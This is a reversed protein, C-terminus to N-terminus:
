QNDTPNSISNDAVERLYKFLKRSHVPPKGAAVERSANRVLQRLHQIDCGPNAEIYAQLDANQGKVLRDRWVELQHFYKNHAQKGSELLELFEELTAANADRMLRGIYQKQRRLGEGSKLRKATDVAERLAEDLPLKDLQDPRLDILKNGLVQLAQMERKKQSKSVPELNNEDESQPLDDFFADSM